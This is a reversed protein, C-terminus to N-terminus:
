DVTVWEMEDRFPSFVFFRRSAREPINLLSSRYRPRTFDPNFGMAWLLTPFIENHTAANPRKTAASQFTRRATDDSAFVLMPVIGEGRAANVGSCNTAEYGADYLAQGHDSTYVLLVGPRRIQPLLRQFFRDVRWWIGIVYDQVILAREPDLHPRHFGSTEPAYGPDPPLNRAYPSHMGLKEVFLFIKGPRNVEAAIRDAVRDDVAHYPDLTVATRDDVYRLEDYTLLSSMRRVPMWTDIFVTRYDARKAFQWFTPQHLTRGAPDPFDEERAGSRLAVRATSSCNSFSTALGFNALSRRASELFPTNDFASNNIQMYDGRIAEDVILIVKEFKPEIVGTYAVPDRPGMYVSAEKVAFLAKVPVGVTSPLEELRGTFTGVSLATIVFAAAPVAVFARGLSFTPPPQAFLFPAIAAMLLVGAVFHPGYTLLAHDYEHRAEFLTALMHASLTEGQISEAIYNAGFGVLFILVFGYRAWRDKLFPAVATGFIGLAVTVIYLATIVPQELVILTSTKAIAISIWGVTALLVIAAAVVKAAPRIWGHGPAPSNAATSSLAM